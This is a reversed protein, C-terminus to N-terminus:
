LQHGPHWSIVHVPHHSANRARANNSHASHTENISQNMLFMLFLMLYLSLCSDCEFILDDDFILSLVAVVDMMMTSQLCVVSTPWHTVIVIVIIVM